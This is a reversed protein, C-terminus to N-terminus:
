FFRKLAGGLKRVAHSRLAKSAIKLAPLAGPPLLAQLAPNDLAKEATTAARALAKPGNNATAKVSIQHGLRDPFTIEGWSVGKAKGTKWTIKQSM